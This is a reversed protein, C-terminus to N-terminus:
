RRWAPACAAAREDIPPHSATVRRWWPLARPAGAEGAARDLMDAFHGPQGLLALAFRDAQREQARDRWSLVLRAPLVLFPTLVLLLPYSAPDGASAVGARHLLPAWAVLWAAGALTVLEVGLTLPLRTTNHRLRWHGIEHAVVQDVMPAPWAALARDLVVRRSRGLGVVYANCRTSGPRGAILVGRRIDVGARGAVAGVQASLAEDAVTVPGVVVRLLFPLVGQAALTVLAFLVWAPAWWAPTARLLAYLPVTLASGAAVTAVLTKVERAALDGLPLQERRAELVAFPARALARAGGVLAIVLALRLVWGGAGLVVPLRNPVRALVCLVVAGGTAFTEALGKTATPV